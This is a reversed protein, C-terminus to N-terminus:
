GKTFNSRTIIFSTIQTMIYPANLLLKIFVKESYEIEKKKSDTAGSWSLTAKALIAATQETNDEAEDDINRLKAALARWKKSDLGVITLVLDTDKGFQDTVTMKAGSEHDEVTYLQDINM